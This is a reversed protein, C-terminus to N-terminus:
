KDKLYYSSANLTEIYIYQKKNILHVLEEKLCKKFCTDLDDNYFSERLIEVGQYDRGKEVMDAVFILKELDTMQPRASTHYKIANIINKDTIGLIREAMYAGLFAHIVPAPMDPPPTFGEVKTYDIYKAMDHLMASIEVQKQDLGIEKAKQLACLTVEATHIRRKEPLNNRIFEAVFDGQYLGNKDIYSAVNKDTMNTIDLGLSNYVRIATSSQKKGVNKLVVFQKNFTKNFYEREKTFDTTQGDRDFVALTCNSLINQPNKWTKFDYLMDAGVIFFLECNHTNKFHEVTLYTYSTGQKQIEFDSVQVKDVGNFALKLMNLRDNAPAPQSTKHPAIFTPMVILRDLNLEKVASKALAIHENHVPNFSGGFIAIREM